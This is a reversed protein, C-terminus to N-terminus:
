GRRGPWFRYRCVRRERERRHHAMGGVAITRPSGPATRHRRLLFDRVHGEVHGSPEGAAGRDNAWSIATESM